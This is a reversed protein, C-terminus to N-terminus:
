KKLLSGGCKGTRFWIFGTYMRNFYCKLIIRGDTDLDELHEQKRVLIRYVNEIHAVLGAMEDM